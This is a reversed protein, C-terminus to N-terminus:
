SSTNIAALIREIFGDAHERSIWRIVVTLDHEPDVWILNTGKGVAFFSSEPASPFLAGGPNVWWMYAYTPERESPATALDVWRESILQRGGWNGRRLFLYGFRAHDFSSAWVGGGWHGGGSVSQMERGDITVYSNRYGHWEWSDSAGIPDMIERKLVEPLPERLVRLVSLALRNVRVDNYEYFTGPENLERDRGRRRDAMDPKDWLVGEWESTQQLLNQWTIRANHESDFGGDDVYDKVLDHVDRILGKDFALGAMTSVYSKAVSFTMDVRETDGWEGAIYGHRTIVGNVGTREKTPGIIENHPHDNIPDTGLTNPIDRSEAAEHASAFDMAEQLKASDMGLEEPRKREWNDYGPEPYYVTTTTQAM